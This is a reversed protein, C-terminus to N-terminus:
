KADGMLFRNIRDQETKPAVFISVGLENAIKLALGLGVTPKGAEVDSLTQKAVGIVLAAQEISLGSQTRVSRVAEGLTMPDILQKQQPFPKAVIKPM